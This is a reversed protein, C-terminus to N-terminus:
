STGPALIAEIRELLTVPSFPKELLDPGPRLGREALETRGFGSMFLVKVRPWRQKLRVVLEPGGTTPLGVDVLLLQVAEGHALAREEAEANSAAELTAYGNRRLVRVILPRLLDDDEVVLITASRRPQQLTWAGSSELEGPAAAPVGAPSSLSAAVSARLGSIRHTVGIGRDVAKLIQDVDDRAPDGPRLEEGIVTAFGRIASFVNRLDHVISGVEVALPSDLPLPAGTSGPGKKQALPIYAKRL